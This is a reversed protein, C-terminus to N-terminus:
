EIIKERNNYLTLKVNDHAQKTFNHFECVKKFKEEEKDNFDNPVDGTIYCLDKKKRLLKKKRKDEDPLNEVRQDILDISREILTEGIPAFPQVIWKGDQHVMAKDRNFDSVYINKFEPLENNIHMKEIMKAPIKSVGIVNLAKFISEDTLKDFSESGFNVITIAGNNMNNVKCNTNTIKSLNTKKIKKNTEKQNKELLKIKENLEIILKTQEEMKENQEEMKIILDQFIAEKEACEEKRIKCRDLHKKLYDSRKFQQFCFNCILNNTKSSIDTITQNTDNIVQNKDIIVHNTEPTNQRLKPSSNDSKPTNKSSKLKNVLFIQQCPKKKNLVHNTFNSKKNFNKNCNKCTYIVM